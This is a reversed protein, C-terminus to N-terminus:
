NTFYDWILAEMFPPRPYPNSSIRNSNDETTSVGDDVGLKGVCM